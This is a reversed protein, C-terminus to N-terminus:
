KKPHDLKGIFLILRTNKDMILYLFPHDARFIKPQNEKSPRMFTPIDLGTVAVATTGSENVEILSRQWVREVYQPRESKTLGTLDTNNKSFIEALGLKQLGPILNMDKEISFKPFTVQVRELKLHNLWKDLAAPNLQILLESFHLQQSPLLILMSFRDGKYPMELIQFHKEEFYNFLSVKSMMPSPISHGSSPMFFQDSTGQEDFPKYWKGVFKIVSILYLGNPDSLGAPFVDFLLRSDSHESVFQKLQQLIQEGNEPDYVLLKINEDAYFFERIRESFGTGDGTVMITTNDFDNDFLRASKILERNLQKYVQITNRNFAFVEELEEHIKGQSGEYLVSFAVQISLPSFFLNQHEKELRKFLNLCFNQHNNVM